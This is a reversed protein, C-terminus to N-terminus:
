SLIHINTKKPLTDGCNQRSNYHDQLFTDGILAFDTKPHEGTYAADCFKLVILSRWELAALTLFVHSIIIEPPINNTYPHM